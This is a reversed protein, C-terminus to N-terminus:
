NLQSEPRALLRAALEPLKGNDGNAEHTLSAASIDAPWGGWLLDALRMAGGSDGESIQLQEALEGWPLERPPNWLRGEAIASAFNARAVLARSALWHRGENWGGVNPPYFLDQGMRGLWEALLLTSPPPDLFCLARVAGVVFEVPGAVRSRINEESFFLRSRLIVGLAWDIRLQNAALGSALQEHGEDDVVDEGMFTRCLRWAIRRPAASQNLVVEVLGDLAFRGTVGLIIKEGDDHREARFRGAEGVVTWGTLARAAELVDRETYEGVGLAFLEMLERALNENPRGTRNSDADLWKLMAPHTIVATLLVGFPGRAQRRLLENQSRMLVLDQVKLNSTAFHNHWMLTLREGLPDPSFLMRYIWWAKLRNASGSATAADAITNSLTEFAEGAVSPLKGALVRGIAAEPGETLDQQLQQWPAALGARRHLHVIRELNWPMSDDPTYPAWTPLSPQSHSV